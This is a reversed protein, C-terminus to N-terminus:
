AIGATRAVDVLLVGESAAAQALLDNLRAVLRSPAAPVLRDYSGFLPETTDLFTQQIVTAKFAERARRWLFRLEDVAHAVAEDAEVMSAGLPVRAILERATLSLLVVQPSFQYLSSSPDLLSQRHQGYAGVYADIVLGRRLAAVRIAPVLHDVTSSALVALRSASFGAIPEEPRGLARDLQITELFGLRHQALEALKAIRAPLPAELASRLSARFDSPAPLWGMALSSRETDGQTPTSM